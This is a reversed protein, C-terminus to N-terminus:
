LRVDSLCSAPLHEVYTVWGYGDQCLYKPLQWDKYETGAQLAIWAMLKTLQDELLLDRPKYVIKQTGSLVITCVTANGNHMEGESIVCESLHVEGTIRLLRKIAPFDNTFRRALLVSQAIFKETLSQLLRRLEPYANLINLLYEPNQLLISEFEKESIFTEHSLNFVDRELVLVSQAISMLRNALNKLFGNIFYKSDEPTLEAIKDLHKETQYTYLKLYPWLPCDTHLREDKSNATKLLDCADIM